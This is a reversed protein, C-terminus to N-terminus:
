PTSRALQIFDERAQQDSIFSLGLKLMREREAAHAEAVSEREATLRTVEAALDNVLYSTGMHM